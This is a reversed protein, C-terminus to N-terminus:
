FRYGARLAAGVVLAGSGNTLVGIEPLAVEIQLHELPTWSAIAGGRVLFGVDRAGSFLFNPGLEITFGLHIPLTFPTFQWVGGVVIGLAGFTGLEVDVGARVELGDTGAFAYGVRAEIIGLGGGAGFTRTSMSGDPNRITAVRPSFGHAYTGGVGVMLLWSGDRGYIPRADWAERERQAREEETRQREAEARAAEEEARRREEEAAAAEEAERRRREEEEAALRAREEEERRLREEESVAPEEAGGSLRMADDGLGDPRLMARLVDLLRAHEEADLVTVVLEEVRQSPRYGVRVHLRYQGRMPEIEALVVYTAGSATAVGDMQASTEPRDTTGLGGPPAIVEHGVERIVDAVRDELEDLRDQDARGSLPYLVVRDAHAVAPLLAAPALAIALVTFAGLASRSSQKM